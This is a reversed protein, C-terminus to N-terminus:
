GFILIFVDLPFFIIRGVGWIWSVVMLQALAPSPPDETHVGRDINSLIEERSQKYYYMAFPDLVATTLRYLMGKVTWNDPDCALELYNPDDRIMVAAIPMAWALVPSLMIFSFTQNPLLWTLM